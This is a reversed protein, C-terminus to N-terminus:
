LQILRSENTKLFTPIDKRELRTDGKDTVFPVGFHFGAESRPLVLVGDVHVHDDSVVLLKCNEISKRRYDTDGPHTASQKLFLRLGAITNTDLLAERVALGATRADRYAEIGHPRQEFMRGETQSLWAAQHAIGTVAM